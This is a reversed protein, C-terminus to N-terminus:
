IFHLGLFGSMASMEQPQIKMEPLKKSLAMSIAAMAGLIEGSINRMSCMEPENGSGQIIFKENNVVLFGGYGYLNEKENFSGDVFAYISPLNSITNTSVSNVNGNIYDLAEQETKFKKFQANPYGNTNEKCEDWTTYVGPIKGVKVGYFM